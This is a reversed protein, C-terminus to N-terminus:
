GYKLENLVAFQFINDASSADGARDKLWSTFAWGGENSPANACRQCGLAITDLTVKHWPGWDAPDRSDNHEAVTVTGAEYDYTGSKVIAWYGTGGEIATILIGQLDDETLEITINVKHAKRDAKTKKSV